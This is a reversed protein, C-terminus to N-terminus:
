SHNRESRLVPIRGPQVSNRRSSFCYGSILYGLIRVHDLATADRHVDGRVRQCEDMHPRLRERVTSISHMGNFNREKFPWM